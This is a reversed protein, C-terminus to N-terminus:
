EIVTDARVLFSPTFELGLARATSVNIAFQFKTPQLVPLDAPKEGKLIRGVYAGAQRFSEARDDSYSMLGGGSVFEPAFYIAPVTYRAALVILQSRRAEFFGDGEVLLGGAQERALTAFATDIEPPTSANVVIPRQGVSRAAIQLNGTNLETAPNGPNVLYAVTSAQPVLERLLELRKLETGAVLYTVGTVNAGPRNLNAVLGQVIPDAGLTFVIPITSTAAKAAQAAILNSFTFIVAVRRAVLEAVLAPIRDYNETSRAEFNFNRGELYGQDALGQRLATIQFPIPDGVSLYGIVPMASQQGRAALPWAAAGGLLTVFERRKM